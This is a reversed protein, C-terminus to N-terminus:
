TFGDELFFIVRELNLPVMYPAERVHSLWKVDKTAEDEIEKPRLSAPLMEIVLIGKAFDKLLSPHSGNLNPHGSPLGDVRKPGDLFRTNLSLNILGKLRFPTM